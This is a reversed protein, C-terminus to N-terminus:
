LYSTDFLHWNQVVGSPEGLREDFGSEGLWIPALGTVRVPVSLSPISIGTPPLQM